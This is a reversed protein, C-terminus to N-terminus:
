AASLLIRNQINTPTYNHKPINTILNHASFSQVDWFGLSRTGLAPCHESRLQCGCPKHRWWTQRSGHLFLKLDANIERFHMKLSTTCVTTIEQSSFLLFFFVKLSWLYLTEWIEGLVIKGHPRHFDNNPSSISKIYNITSLGRCLFM